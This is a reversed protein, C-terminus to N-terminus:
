DILAWAVVRELDGAEHLVDAFEAPNAIGPHDLRLYAALWPTAKPKHVIAGTVNPLLMASDWMIKDARPDTCLLCMVVPQGEFLMDYM